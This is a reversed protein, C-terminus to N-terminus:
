LRSAARGPIVDQAAKGVRGDCFPESNTIYRRPHNFGSLICWTILFIILTLFMSKISHQFPYFLRVDYQHLDKDPLEAFFHNAKVLCRTGISGSGPRHPFKYSNHSMPFAQVIEQGVNSEDQVSLDKLQDLVEVTSTHPSLDPSGAEPSSTIDPEHSTEMAQRLEPAITSPASRRGGRDGDYNQPPQVERYAQGHGLYGAAPGAPRWQQPTVAGRGRPQSAAGQGHQYYGTGRGGQPFQQHYSAGPGRFGRGPGRGGGGHEAAQSGEGFGPM